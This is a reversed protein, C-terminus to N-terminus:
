LRYNWEIVPYSVERLRMQLHQYLKPCFEQMRSCGQGMRRLPLIPRGNAIQVAQRFAADMYGSYLVFEGDSFFRNSSSHCFKYCVPIAVVNEEHAIESQGFFGKDMYDHGHLFVWEPHKLVFGRQVYRPLVIKPKLTEM